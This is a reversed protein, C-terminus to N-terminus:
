CLFSVMIEIANFRSVVEDCVVEPSTCTKVSICQVWKKPLSGGAIVTQLKPWWKEWIYKPHHQNHDAVLGKTDLLEDLNKFEMPHLRSPETPPWDREWVDFVQETISGSRWPLLDPDPKRPKVFTVM